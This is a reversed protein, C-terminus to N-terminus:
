RKPMKTPAEAKARTNRPNPPSSNIARPKSPMVSWGRVEISIMKREDPRLEAKVAPDAKAPKGVQISEVGAGADAVVVKSADSSTCSRCGNLALCVLAVALARMM